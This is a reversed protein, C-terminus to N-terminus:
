GKTHSIIWSSFGFSTDVYLRGLWPIVIVSRGAQKIIETFNPGLNQQVVMKIFGVIEKKIHKKEQYWQQEHWAEISNHRFFKPKIDSLGITLEAFDISWHM